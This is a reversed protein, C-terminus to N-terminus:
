RGKGGRSRKPFTLPLKLSVKYTRAAAAEQKVSGKVKAVTAGLEKFYNSLKEPHLRLDAALSDIFLHYDTALLAAVGLYLLLKDRTTQPRTYTGAAFTSFTRLFTLALPPPINLETSVADPTKAFKSPLRNFNVLAVIYALHRAMRKRKKKDAGALLPLVERVFQPLQQNSESDADEKSAQVLEAGSLLSWEAEALLSEEEYVKDLAEASLNCAPALENPGEDDGAGAHKGPSRVADAEEKKIRLEKEVTEMSEEGEEQLQVGKRQKHVNKVRKSGFGAVLADRAQERTMTSAGTSKQELGKVRRKLAFVNGGSVSAGPDVLVIKENSPDYMAVVYKFSSSHESADTGEFLLRDSEGLLVRSGSKKNRQCEFKVGGDNDHLVEVPPPADSFCALLCGSVNEEETNVAVKAFKQSPAPEEEEPKRKKSESKKEKGM